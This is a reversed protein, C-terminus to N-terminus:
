SHIWVHIPKWKSVMVGYMNQRLILIVLTLNRLLYGFMKLSTIKAWFIMLKLSLYLCM